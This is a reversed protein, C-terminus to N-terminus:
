GAFKSANKIAYKHLPRNGPVNQNEKQPSIKIWKSQLFTVIRDGYKLRRSAYSHTCDNRPTPGAM